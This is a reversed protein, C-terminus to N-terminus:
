THDDIDKGLLRSRLEVRTAVPLLRARRLVLRFLRQYLDPYLEPLRVGLAIELLIASELPPLSVGHEYKSIMVAHKHGILVALQKQLLRRNRRVNFIYNRESNIKPTM